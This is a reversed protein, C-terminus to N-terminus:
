APFPLAMSVNSSLLTLAVILCLSMSAIALSAAVADILRKSAVPAVRGSFGAAGTSRIM